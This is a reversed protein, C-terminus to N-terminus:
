QHILEMVAQNWQELQARKPMESSAMVREPALLYGIWILLSLDFGMIRLLAFTQAAGFGLHVRTTVGILEVSVFLGLGVTIGFAQQRWHLGFATSFVFLYMLLGVELIRTAEEGVLIATMFGSQDASPQAYAVVLSLLVLGVVALSLVLMATRRLAVYPHLLKLFIELIVGIGLLLGIAECWWYGYFYLFGFGRVAYLGVSTAFVFLTYGSFVPFKDWLRKTLIVLVLLAQLGMGAFGLTITHSTSMSGQGVSSVEERTLPCTNQQPIKPRVVAASM